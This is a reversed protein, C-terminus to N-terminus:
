QRGVTGPHTPLVGATGSRAAHIAEMEGPFAGWFRHLLRSLAGEEMGEGSFLCIGRGHRWDRETLSEHSVVAAFETSLILHADMGLGAEALLAGVTEVNHDRSLEDLADDVAASRGELDDGNSDAVQFPAPRVQLLICGVGAVVMGAFASELEEWAPQLADPVYAVHIAPLPLPSLDGDRFGIVLDYGLDPLFEQLSAYREGLTRALDRSFLTTGGEAAAVDLSLRGGPPVIRGWARLDRDIRGLAAALLYTEHGRTAAESLRYPGEVQVLAEGNGFDARHRLVAGLVPRGDDDSLTFLDDRAHPGEAPAIGRSAPEFPLASAGALNRVEVVMREPAGRDHLGFSEVAELDLVRAAEEGRRLDFPSLPRWPARVSPIFVSESLADDLNPSLRAIQMALLDDVHSLFALFADDPASAFAEGAAVVDGTGAATRLAAGLAACFPHALPIFRASQAAALLALGPWRPHSPDSQLDRLVTVLWPDWAARLRAAGRIAWHPDDAVCAALGALYRAGGPTAAFAAADATRLSRFEETCQALVDPVAAAGGTPRVADLTEFAIEESVGFAALAARYQTRRALREADTVLHDPPSARGTGAALLDRWGEYGFMRGVLDRGAALPIEFGKATLHRRIAKVVRMPAERGEFEIRLGTALGTDGQSDTLGWSHAM